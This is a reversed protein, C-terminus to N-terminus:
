RPRRYGTRERRPLWREPDPDVDPNYNKPLIKKRKKKSAKKKKLIEEGKPTKPSAVGGPKPTKKGIKNAGMFAASELADADVAGANFDPLKKSAALARKLDFKAYALVQIPPPPFPLPKWPSYLILSVVLTIIFTDPILSSESIPRELSRSNWGFLDNFIGFDADSSEDNMLSVILTEFSRSFIRVKVQSTGYGLEEALGKKNRGLQALTQKDAPNTRLLEELSQAAVSPENGRLHFEATKRWVIAMNAENVKKRNKQGYAVAEKLLRAAAERNDLALYLTVLASLIGTRFRDAPPLKELLGAAADLDKKELYVQTAMLVRNLDGSGDKLLVVVAEDAKGARALAGATIM